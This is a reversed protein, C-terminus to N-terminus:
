RNIINDLKDKLIPKLYQEIVEKSYFTYDYEKIFKNGDVDVYTEINLDEVIKEPDFGNYKLMPLYVSYNENKYIFWYYEENDVGIFIFEIHPIDFYQYKNYLKLEKPKM